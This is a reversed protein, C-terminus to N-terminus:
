SEDDEGVDYYKIEVEKKAEFVPSESRMYFICKKDEPKDSKEWVHSYVEIIVNSDHVSKLMRSYKGGTGYEINKNFGIKVFQVLLDADSSNRYAIYSNSKDNPLIEKKGTKCKFDLSVNKTLNQFEGILRFYGESSDFTIINKGSSLITNEAAIINDSFKFGSYKESAQKTKNDSENSVKTQNSTNTTINTTINSITTNSTTNSTINNSTINNIIVENSITNNTTVNKSINKDTIKLACGSIIFYLMTLCLLFFMVRM